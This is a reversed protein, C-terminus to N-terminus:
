PSDRDVRFEVCGREHSRSSRTQQQENQQQETQRSSDARNQQETAKKNKAGDKDARGIRREGVDDLWSEIRIRDQSRQRGDM